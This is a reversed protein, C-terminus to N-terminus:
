DAAPRRRRVAIGVGLLGAALLALTGPEPVKANSGVNRLYVTTGTQNDFDNIDFRIQQTTNAFSSGSIDLISGFWDGSDSNRSISGLFPLGGISVNLNLTPWPQGSGVPRDVVWWSDFSITTGLAIPGTIYSSGDTTSTSGDWSLPMAAAMAPGLLGVTALLTRVMTMKRDPEHSYKM